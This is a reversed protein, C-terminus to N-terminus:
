DALSLKTKFDSPFAIKPADLNGFINDWINQYSQTIMFIFLVVKTKM